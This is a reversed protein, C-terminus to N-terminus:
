WGGAEEHHRSRSTRARVVVHNGNQERKKKKKKPKAVTKSKKAKIMWGDMGDMSGYGMTGKCMYVSVVVVEGEVDKGTNSRM